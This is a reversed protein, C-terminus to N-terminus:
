GFHIESLVYDDKILQVTVGLPSVPANQYERVKADFLEDADDEWNVDEASLLEGEWIARVTYTETSESM